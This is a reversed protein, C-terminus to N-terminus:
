HAAQKYNEQLILLVDFKQFLTTYFLKMKIKIKSKLM